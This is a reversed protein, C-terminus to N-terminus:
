SPPSCWSCDKEMSTMKPRGQTRSGPTTGQILEKELYDGKKRLIHGYYAMKMETLSALLSRSVGATELVWEKTRKATWSIRLVQRLCKMVFASIRKEDDKKFTWSDCGYMAVPWVLAKMLRNLYQKWSFIVPSAPMCRRLSHHIRNGAQPKNVCVFKTVGQRTVSHLNKHM